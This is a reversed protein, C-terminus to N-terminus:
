LALDMSWIELSDSPFQKLFPCCKERENAPYKVPLVQEFAVGLDIHVVEGSQKDLLINQCHRDGLGLVHGIMSSAALSRSYSIRRAFWNDPDRFHELFFYSLVPHFHKCVDQYIQLRKGHESTAAEHVKQRCISWKWDKSYVNGHTRELYELLPISELVWEIVGTQPKLPVVRYTRIRMERRRTERSRQMVGDMEYFIQQMIADQHLDDKGKVQVM